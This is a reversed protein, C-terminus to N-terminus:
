LSAFIPSFTEGYSVAEPISSIKPRIGRFLYPPSYIEANNQFSVSVPAQGGGASLVRGDPLLLATSHYLRPAQMASVTEWKKTKPDWLEAVRVPAAENNFGPGQSGGTVLVVKGALGLDM